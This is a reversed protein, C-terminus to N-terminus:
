QREVLSAETMTTDLRRRAHGGDGWCARRAGARQRMPVVKRCRYANICDYPLVICYIWGKNTVFHCNLCYYYLYVCVCMYIYIYICVYTLVYICVCMCVYMCLFVFKVSLFLWLNCFQSVIADKLSHISNINFWWLSLIHQKINSCRPKYVFSLYYKRIFIDYM